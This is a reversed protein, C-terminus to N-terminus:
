MGDRKSLEDEIAKIVERIRAPWEADVFTLDLQKDELEPSEALSNLLSVKEELMYQLEITSFGGVIRLESENLM